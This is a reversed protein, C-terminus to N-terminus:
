FVRQGERQVVVRVVVMMWLQEDFETISTGYESVEFMFAGIQVHKHRKEDKQKELENIEAKLKEYREVYGNYRKLYEEQNLETQSNEEVCKRTLGVVVEAERYLENLREDIKSCDCVADQMIRCDELLRDRDFVLTNYAEVFRRRIETETTHPTKCATDGKFKGNCQYITKRYKTNSQWM